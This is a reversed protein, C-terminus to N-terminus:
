LFNRPPTALMPCGSSQSERSFLLPGTTVKKPPAKLGYIFMMKTQMNLRKRKGDREKKKRKRKQKRKRKRESRILGCQM